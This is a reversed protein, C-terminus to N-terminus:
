PAPKPAPPQAPAPAPPQSQPQAATEGPKITFKVPESSNVSGSATSYVLTAGAVENRGDSLWADGAFEVAGRGLDYDIRNARGRALKDERKQEFTAPAGTISASQIEGKSFRVRATESALQAEVTKIRVTGSFEWRSDEFDVGTAVAREATIRIDGQTITIDSFNLVGNQTDFNTPGKVEINIPLRNRDPTQASAAAAVAVLVVAIGAKLISAAM